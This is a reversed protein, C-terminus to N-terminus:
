EKVDMYDRMDEQTGWGDPFQAYTRPRTDGNDRPIGVIQDYESKDIRLVIPDDKADYWVGRVKVKM